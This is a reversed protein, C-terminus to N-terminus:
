WEGKQLDGVGSPCKMDHCACEATVVGSAATVKRGKKAALKIADYNNCTSKEESIKKDYTVLYSKYKKDEVVFACGCNM